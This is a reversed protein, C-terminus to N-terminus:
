MGFFQAKIKVQVKAIYQNEIFIQIRMKFPHRFHGGSRRKSPVYKDFVAGM